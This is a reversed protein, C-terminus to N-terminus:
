IQFYKKEFAIFDFYNQYQYKFYRLFQTSLSNQYIKKWFEELVCKICSTGMQASTHFFKNLGTELRFCAGM